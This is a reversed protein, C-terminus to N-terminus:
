TNFQGVGAHVGYRSISELMAVHGCDIPLHQGVVLVRFVIVRDSDRVMISWVRDRATVGLARLHRGRSLDDSRRCALASAIITVVRRMQAKGAAGIWLGGGRRERFARSGLEPPM